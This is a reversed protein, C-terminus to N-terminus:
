HPAIRYCDDVIEAYYVKGDKGYYLLEGTDVDIIRKDITFTTTAFTITVDRHFKFKDQHRVLPKSTM